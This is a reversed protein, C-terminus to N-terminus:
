RKARAETQTISRDDFAQSNPDEPHFTDEVEEEYQDEDKEQKEM